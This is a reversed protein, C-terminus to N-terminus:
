TGHLRWTLKDGGMWRVQDPDDLDDIRIGASAAVVLVDTMARATGVIEGDIELFRYPPDGPEVPLVTIRPNNPQHRANETM